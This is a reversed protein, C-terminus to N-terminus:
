IKIKGAKIEELLEFAMEDDVYHKLTNWINESSSLKESYKNILNISWQIGENWSLNGWNWKDFHKDIFEESWPLSKNKSLIEWYWDNLFTDILIESWNINELSVRKWNIQEYNLRLFELITEHNQSLIKKYEKELNSDVYLDSERFFHNKIIVRKRKDIFIVGKGDNKGGVKIAIDVLENDKLNFLIRFQEFLKAKIIEKSGDHFELKVEVTRYKIGNKNIKLKKKKFNPLLIGQFRATDGYDISKKIQKVTLNYDDDLLHHNCNWILGLFLKPNRHFIERVLQKNSNELALQSELYLTFDNLKQTIGNTTKYYNPFYKSVISYFETIFQKALHTNNTNVVINEYNSEAKYSWNYSGTIVTKHDIVCFKNHMLNNDGNGIKFIKANYRELTHFDIQSNENISDDSIIIKIKCGKRGKQKLKNFIKDNTFWAVAIYISDNAKDIERCIRIGINEFIAETQM